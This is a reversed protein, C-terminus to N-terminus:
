RPKESTDPAHELYGIAQLARVSEDDLTVPASAGPAQARHAALLEAVGGPDGRPAREHPDRALDYYLPRAGDGGIGKWSGRVVASLRPGFALAGAYLPREPDFGGGELAARLSMGDGAPGPVGLFDLLTPAIDAVSAPAEIRGPTVSPHWVYLPVRLLEGFLSHGHGIGYTGRPDFALEAEIEAHDLFEEGHDSFLVVVTDDLSGERELAGLLEAVTQRLLVVAGAYALYQRCLPADRIECAAPALAIAQEQTEPSLAAIRAESEREGLVAHQHADMWHLYLFFRRQPDRRELWSAAAAAIRPRSDLGPLYTWTEFGREIGVGRIWPQAFFGATEFGLAHLREGLTPTAVDLGGPIRGELNAIEEPFSGLRHREPRLGTFASGIAPLTWPSTSQARALSAAREWHARGAPTDHARALEFLDARVTDLCILVANRAAPSSERECGCGLLAALALGLGLSFPLARPPRMM